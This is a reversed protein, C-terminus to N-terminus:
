QIRLYQSQGPPEALYSKAFRIGTERILEEDGEPTPAPPIKAATEYGYTPIPDPPPDRLVGVPDRGQEIARIGERIMRRMMIIGKDTSVLHELDHVAIERQGVQADYDAPYRQRDEYPRAAGANQAMTAFEPTNTYEDIEGEPTRTFTFEM